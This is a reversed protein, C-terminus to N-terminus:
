VVVNKEFDLKIKKNNQKVLDDFKEIKRLLLEDQNKRGADINSIQISNM